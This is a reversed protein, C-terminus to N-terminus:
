RNATGNVKRFAAYKAKRTRKLKKAAKEADLHAKITSHPVQVIQKMADEFKQWQPNDESNYQKANQMKRAVM